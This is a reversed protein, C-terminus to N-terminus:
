MLVVFFRGANFLVILDNELPEKRRSLLELFDLYIACGIADDTAGPAPPVSDM